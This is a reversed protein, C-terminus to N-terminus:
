GEKGRGRGRRRGGGGRVAGGGGGGGGGAAAGGGVGEGEVAVVAGGGGIEALQENSTRLQENATELENNARQLGHDQQQDDGVQLRVLLNASQLQHNAAVRQKNAVLRHQYLQQNAVLDQGLNVIRQQQNAARLQQNAAQQQMSAAHLLQEKIVQLQEYQDITQLMIVARLRQNATQLQQNAHYLHDNAELNAPNPNAALLLQVRAAHLRQNSTHLMQNAIQLQNYVKQLLQDTVKLQQNEGTFPVHNMIIDTFNAYFEKVKEEKSLTDWETQLEAQIQYRKQRDSVVSDISPQTKYFKWYVFYVGVVVAATQYFTQLRSPADRFAKTIPVIMLMAAIMGALFVMLIVIAFLICTHCLCWRVNEKSAMNDRRDIFASVYTSTSNLTGFIALITILYFILVSTAYTGDNLYAITIYPIHIIFSLIPGLTSLSLFIYINGKDKTYTYVSCCLSGVHIWCVLSCLIGFADVSVVIYPLFNMYQENIIGHNMRKVAIASLIFAYVNAIFTTVAVSFIKSQTSKDANVTKAVGRLKKTHWESSYCHIILLLIIIVVAIGFGGCYFLLVFGATFTDLFHQDDEEARAFYNDDISPDFSAKQIYNKLQIIICSL